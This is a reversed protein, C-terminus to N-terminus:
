MAARTIGARIADEGSQYGGGARGVAAAMEDLAALMTEAGDLWQEWGLRFAASAGGRWGSGLLEHAAVRVRALAARSHESVEGILADCGQLEGADVAYGGV